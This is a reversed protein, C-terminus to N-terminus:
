IVIRQAVFSLEVLEYNGTRQGEYKRENFIEVKM